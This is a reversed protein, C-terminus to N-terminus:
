RSPMTSRKYGRKTRSILRTIWVPTVGTAPDAAAAATAATAWAGKFPFEPSIGPECDGDAGDDARWRNDETEFRWRTDEALAPVM